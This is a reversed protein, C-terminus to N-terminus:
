TQDDETLAGEDTLLLTAEDPLGTLVNEIYHNTANVLGYDRGAEESLYWLHEIVQVYFEPESLRSRLREPIAAVTPQYRETLWRYAMMAEPLETAGPESALWAGYGHLARLLRRAQNEQARIGTLRELARRHHGEEVVAPRFRVRRRGDDDQLIEMEETDFGLDNLRQLRETIRYLEDGNLEDTRTLENWLDHYRVCLSDVVEIPDVEAPLKELAELEYLGGAINDSAIALDHTRQGDTLSEQLESTETDVLYAVLAGADRRFLANGLSCDGWFFGALHIRCLLVALADVLKDHLGDSGPGAFLHLYPLSYRLHQTILVAELETGDPGVRQDAVGILDVVPLGAEKLFDLLEFEKHALPSPLEKFAFFVGEHDIFRVVHRHRGRPLRVAMEDPWDELPTAWPLSLFDPQATPSTKLTLAVM